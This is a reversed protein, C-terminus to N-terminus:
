EGERAMGNMQEFRDRDRTGVECGVMAGEGSCTLAKEDGTTGRHAEVGCALPLVQGTFAVTLHAAGMIFWETTGHGQGLKDRNM